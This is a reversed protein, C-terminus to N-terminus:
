FTHVYGLSLGTLQTDEIKASTRGYNDASGTSYSFTLGSVSPLIEYRLYVSLTRSSFSEYRTIAGLKDKEERSENMSTAYGLGTYFSNIKYLGALEVTTVGGGSNDTKDGTTADESSGASLMTKKLGLYTEFADFKKSVEVRIGTEAGGRGMSGNSTTTATKSKIISPSYTLGLDLNVGATDDKLLRYSVGLTPDALGSSKQEGNAIGASVDYNLAVKQSLTNQVEIGASLEDNIGYQYNLGILSQDTKTELYPAGGVKVKAKATLSSYGASIFHKGADPKFSLDLPSETTAASASTAGLIIILGTILSRM